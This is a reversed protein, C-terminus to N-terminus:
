PSDSGPLRSFLWFFFGGFAGSGLYNLTDFVGAHQWRASDFPGALLYWVPLACLVGGLVFQWHRRFGLRRFLLWLPLGGFIAVVIAILSGVFWALPSCGTGTALVLGIGCSSLVAAAVGVVAALVAVKSGVLLMGM